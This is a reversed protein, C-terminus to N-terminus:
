SPEAAGCSLSYMWIACLVGFVAVASLAGLATFAAYLMITLSKVFPTFLVAALLM